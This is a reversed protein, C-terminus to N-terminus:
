EPAEIWVAGVQRGRDRHARHSNWGGECATCKSVNTATVGLTELRRMVGSVLDLAPQGTGTRSRVVAGLSSSVEDLDSAGFEYCEPGIAPGVFAEVPGSVRARMAAVAADLVGAVAGRWGAHAAGVIGDIGVLIVPVCDATQVALTANSVDTVAADATSGALAGPHKVVVVGAGHVQRLWTWPYPSLRARVTTLLPDSSSTAFDGDALDSFRVRAQRGDSLGVDFRIM